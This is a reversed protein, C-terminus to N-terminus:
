HSLAQRVTDPAKDIVTLFCRAAGSPRRKKQEWEQLTRLSFGFKSAFEPQTMSLKKRILTV